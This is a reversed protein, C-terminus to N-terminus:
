IGKASKKNKRGDNKEKYSLTLIASKKIRKTKILDDLLVLIEAIPRNLETQLEKLTANHGYLKIVMSVELDSWGFDLNIGAIHRIKNNATM